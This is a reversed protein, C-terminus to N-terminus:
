FRLEVALGGGFTRSTQSDSIDPFWVWARLDAMPSLMTGLGFGFPYQESSPGGSKYVRLGLMPGLWLTSSVQFWVAVPISIVTVKPEYLLIPVFVGTDIRLIALRLILPAGFMFGFKTGNEFPLYARGEIGLDVAGGSILAGRLRLEPNAFTEYGVGYTETDFARGYRDGQVYRGDDDLRIGTRLGIEIHRGVGGSIELNMGFGSVSSNPGTPQRGLGLGLDVGVEGAPRVVGRWQWSGAAHAASVASGTGLLALLSPLWWRAKTRRRGHM